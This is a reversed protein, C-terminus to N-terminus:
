ATTGKVLVGPRTCITLPNSETHILIGKDGPLEDQRAYYPLGVTNATSMMDGPAFYTKFLGPAGIPAFQVEGDPIFPQAGVRGRFQEFIIGGYEFGDYRNDTQLRRGDLWRSYAEKVKPHQIFAKFWTRGCFAHVHDYPLTGVADEVANLVDTCKDLPDTGATGLAFTVTTQSIGFITFLNALVTTGDADLVTGKLAGVRHWEATTEHNQRMKNIRTDVVEAVSTLEDSEGFSRINQIDEPKINDDYPIHPVIFPILKRKDRKALTAPAGRPVTPLLALTGNVSEIQATTTIIGEEEFLGMAGLRNPVYPAANIAATMEVLSFADSRFIDLTPM